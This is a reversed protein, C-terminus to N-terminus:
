KGIWLDELQVLGAKPSLDKLPPQGINLKKLNTLRSLPTIDTIGQNFLSLVHIKKVDSEALDGTPKNIAKRIASEIAM